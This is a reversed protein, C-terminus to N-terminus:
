ATKYPICDPYLRMKNEKAQVSYQIRQPANTRDNDDDDSNPRLLYPPGPLPLHLLRAPPARSGGSDGCAASAPYWKVGATRKQLSPKYTGSRRDEAIAIDRPLGPATHPHEAHSTIRPPGLVNKNALPEYINYCQVILVTSHLPQFTECLALM